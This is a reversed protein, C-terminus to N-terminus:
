SPMKTLDDDSDCYEEIIEITSKQTDFIQMTAMPDTPDLIRGM